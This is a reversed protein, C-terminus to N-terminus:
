DTRALLFFKALMLNANEKMRKLTSQHFSYIQLTLFEIKLSTPQKNGLLSQAALFHIREAKSKSAAVAVTQIWHIELHLPPYPLFSKTGYHKSTLALYDILIDLSM